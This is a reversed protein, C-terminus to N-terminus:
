NRRGKGRNDKNALANDYSKLAETLTDGAWPKGDYLVRWSWRGSRPDHGYAIFLSDQRVRQLAQDLEVLHHLRALEAEAAEARAIAADRDGEIKALLAPLHELPSPM